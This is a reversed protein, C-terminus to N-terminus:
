QNLRQNIVVNAMDKTTSDMNLVTFSKNFSQEGIEKILRGFLEDLFSSSCIRIGEFDLIIQEEVDPMINLLKKRLREAPPRNGTSICEDKIKIGGGESIKEASANIYSWDSEGIFTERLDVPIDTKLDLSIHTGKIFSPNERTYIRENDLFYSGNGSWIFFRGGNKKVIEKAGALWNGQGVSKDRTVGRMLANQIADSHSNFISYSELAKKIGIGMDTIAIQLSKKSPYYQACVVGPTVTQSHIMINDIIENVAWEM